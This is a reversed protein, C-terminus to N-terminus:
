IEAWTLPIGLYPGNDEEEDDDRKPGHDKLEYRFNNPNLQNAHNDATAKFAPNNPNLTNSRDDNATNSGPITLHENPYHAASALGAVVRKQYPHFDRAPEYIIFLYNWHDYKDGIDLRVNAQVATAFPDLQCLCPNGLSAHECPLRFFYPTVGGLAECLENVSHVQKSSRDKFSVWTLRQRHHPPLLNRYHESQKHLEKLQHWNSYGAKHAVLDLAQALSIDSSRVLSKAERNLKEVATATILPLTM